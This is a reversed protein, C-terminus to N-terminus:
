EQNDLFQSFGAALRAYLNKRFDATLETMQKPTTWRWDALEKSPSLDLKKEDGTFRFLFFYIVQGRGTKKRRAHTPLEYALPEPYEAILELDNATIGTEEEVERLVAQYPEEESNLGGQPLQWSGPIDSREFLLVQGRGNIIMAGAGARFYQGPRKM